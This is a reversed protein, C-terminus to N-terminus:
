ETEDSTEWLYNPESQAYERHADERWKARKEKTIERKLKECATDVLQTMTSFGYQKYSRIFAENKLKGLYM